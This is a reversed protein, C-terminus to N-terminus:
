FIILRIVLLSLLGPIGLISVTGVSVYNIPVLINLSSLLLNFSYLLAIAMVVKKVSKFLKNVM